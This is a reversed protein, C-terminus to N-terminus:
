SNKCNLVLRGASVIDKQENELQLLDYEYKKELQELKVKEEASAVQEKQVHADDWETEVTLREQENALAKKALEEQQELIEVVQRSKVEYRNIAAAKSNRDVGPPGSTTSAGFSADKMVIDGVNPYEIEDWAPYQDKSVALHDPKYHPNTCLMPYYLRFEDYGGELILLSKYTVDPDYGTLSSQLRWLPSNRIPDANQNQWDMLVVHDKISRLAWMRKGVESLEAQLKAASMGPQLIEAPVNFCFDTLMHSEQYDHHPRCDMILISTARNSIAEYLEQCNMSRKSVHLAVSSRENRQKNRDAESVASLGGSTKIQDRMSQQMAIQDEITSLSIRQNQVYYREKLSESLKQCKDLISNMQLKGGLMTNIYQKQANYNPQLQIHSVIGLYKMYYIFAMEEDGDLANKEAEQILKAGTKL